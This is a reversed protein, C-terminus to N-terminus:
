AAARGVDSLIAKGSLYGRLDARLSTLDTEPIARRPTYYACNKTYYFLLFEPTEVVQVIHAWTLDISAAVTRVAFGRESVAHRFPGQVSPDQKQLRRAALWPTGWTLFWIWLVLIVIWPAANTLAQVRREGAVAIIILVCAGIFLALALPLKKLWWGGVMHRVIARHARVHDRPTWTFTYEHM